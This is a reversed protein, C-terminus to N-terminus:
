YELLAPRLREPHRLESFQALFARVVQAGLQDDTKEPQLVRLAVAAREAQEIRGLLVPSILARSLGAYAIHHPNNPGGVGHRSVRERQNVLERWIEYFACGVQEALLRWCEPQHTEVGNSKGRAEMNAALSLARHEDLTLPQAAPLLVAFFQPLAQELFSVAGLEADALIRDDV